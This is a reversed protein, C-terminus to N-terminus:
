DTFNSDSGDLTRVVSNITESNGLKELFQIVIARPNHKLEFFKTLDRKYAAISLDYDAVDDIVELEPNTKPDLTRLINSNDSGGKVEVWDLALFASNIRDMHMYIGRSKAHMALVAWSHQLNLLLSEIDEKLEDISPTQELHKRVSETTENLIRERDGV